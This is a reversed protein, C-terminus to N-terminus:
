KYHPWVDIIHNIWRLAWEWERNEEFLEVAMLLHGRPLQLEQGNDWAKDFEGKQIQVLVKCGNWESAEGPYREQIAELADLIEIWRKQEYQYELWATASESSAGKELALSWAGEKNGINLLCKVRFINAYSRHELSIDAIKEHWRLAWEWEQKEHCLLASDMLYGLDLESDDEWAKEFEGMQIQVLVKYGNWESAEGPFREQITELADLIEIWRKQEYQHKIWSLASESSAGKEMALTWAEEQEGLNVFCGIIHNRIQKSQYDADKNQLRKFLELSYSYDNKKYYYSAAAFLTGSPNEPDEYIERADELLNLELLCMVCSGMANDNAEPFHLNILKWWPLADKWRQANHYFEAMTYLLIKETKEKKLISHAKKEYGLNLLAKVYIHGFLSNEPFKKKLYKSWNLVRDWEKNQSSVFHVLSNLIEELDHVINDRLDSNSLLNDIISFARDLLEHHRSKTKKSLEVLMRAWTSLKEDPTHEIVENALSNIWVSDNFFKSLSGCVWLSSPGLLSLDLRELAKILNNINKQDRSKSYAILIALECYSKNTSICDVLTSFYQRETKDSIDLALSELGDVMCLYDIENDSFFLRDTEIFLDHRNILKDLKADIINNPEERLRACFDILLEQTSFGIYAAARIIDQHRESGSWTLRFLMEPSMLGRFQNIWYEAEDLPENYNEIVFSAIWYLPIVNQHKKFLNRLLSIHESGLISEASSLIAEGDQTIEGDENAVLPHFPFSPVIEFYSELNEFIARSEIWQNLREEDERGNGAPQLRLDTCIIPVNRMTHKSVRLNYIARILDPQRYIDDIFFVPILGKNNRRFNEIWSVFWRYVNETEDVHGVWIPEYENSIQILQYALYALWSSKGTKEDSRFCYSNTPKFENLFEKHKELKIFLQILDLTVLPQKTLGELSRDYTRNKFLEFPNGISAKDRLRATNGAIGLSTFQNRKLIKDYYEANTNPSLIQNIFNFYDPLQYETVLAKSGSTNLEIQNSKQTYKNEDKYTHDNILNLLYKPLNAHKGYDLVKFRKQIPFKSRAEDFSDSPSLIYISSTLDSFHDGAWSLMNGINPDELGAGFGIFVPTYPSRLIRLFHQGKINESINHYSREGLVISDPQTYHGHFHLIAEGHRLAKDFEDLSQLTVPPIELWESLLNDYNTTAIIIGSDHIRRLAELIQSNKIEFQEFYHELWDKFAGKGHESLLEQIKSGLFILDDPQPSDELFRSYKKYQENFNPFHNNLYELGNRILGVWGIEQNETAAISVGTGIVFVVREGPALIAKKLDKKFTSSM